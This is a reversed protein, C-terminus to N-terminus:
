CDLDTYTVPNLFITVSICPNVRIIQYKIIVSISIYEKKMVLANLNFFFDKSESFMLDVEHLLKM